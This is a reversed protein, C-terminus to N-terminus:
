LHAGIARLATHRPRIDMPNIGISARFISQQVARAQPGLITAKHLWQM